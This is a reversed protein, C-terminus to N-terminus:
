VKKGMHYVAKRSVVTVPIGIRLYPGVSSRLSTEYGLERSWLEDHEGFIFCSKFYILLIVDPRRSQKDLGDSSLPNRLGLNIESFILYPINERSVRVFLEDLEPLNVVVVEVMMGITPRSLTFFDSDRSCKM